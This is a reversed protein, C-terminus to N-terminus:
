FLVAAQIEGDADVRLIRRRPDHVEPIEVCRPIRAEHSGNEIKCQDHQGRRVLREGMVSLTGLADVFTAPSALEKPHQRIVPVPLSPAIDYRPNWDQEHSVCDLYEEVVEKEALTSLARV